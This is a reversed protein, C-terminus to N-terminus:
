IVNDDRRHALVYAPDGPLDKKRMGFAYNLLYHRSRLEHVHHSPSFPILISKKRFLIGQRALKRRDTAKLDRDTADWVIGTRDVKAMCIEIDSSILPETDLGGDQQESLLRQLLEELPQLTPPHDFIHKTEFSGSGNIIDQLLKIADSQRGDLVLSWALARGFPHLIQEYNKQGYFLHTYQKQKFLSWADEFLSIAVDRRIIAHSIIFQLLHLLRYTNRDDDLRVTGLIVSRIILRQSEVYVDRLRKCTGIASHVNALDRVYKLIHVILEDPLDTLHSM